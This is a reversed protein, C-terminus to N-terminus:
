SPVGFTSPCEREDIGTPKRTGYTTVLGLVQGLTEIGTFGARVLCEPLVGRLNGAMEPQRFLLVAVAGMAKGFLCTPRDIDAVVFRGGPRLVRFVECLARLKDDDALHHFFLSSAVADFVADPYPLAEAVGIDFRCTLDGRKRRAVRVMAPSADIGVALGGVGADLQAGVWRTLHGTACGVDLVKEGGGLALAAAVGRNVRSEQWFLMPPSLLDYVAAAHHLVVGRTAPPQAPDPV